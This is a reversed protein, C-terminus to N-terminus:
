DFSLLYGNQNLWERRDRFDPLISKVKGWFRKGHRRYQLHVLEHVVVYDIIPLPAMVLRWTFRLNGTPGCSGWQKRASSIGVGNHEFGHRASYWQVRESIAELARRRYWKEFLRPARPVSAKALRFGEKFTLSPRQRDVIELGYPAGLYLFEEGSVYRKPAFRAARARATVQKAVIWREHLTVFRHIAGESARLPARVTLQGDDEIVLALTRRRSRIIRDIAIMSGTDLSLLPEAKAAEPSHRGMTFSAVGCSSKLM